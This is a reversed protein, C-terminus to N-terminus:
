ARRSREREVEFVGLALAFAADDIAFTQRGSRARSDRSARRAVEQEPASESVGYLGKTLFRALGSLGRTGMVGDWLM